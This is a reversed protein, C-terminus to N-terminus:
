YGRTQTVLSQFKSAIQKNQGVDSVSMNDYIAYFAGRSEKSTRQSLNNMFRETVYGNKVLSDFLTVRYSHLEEFEISNQNTPYTKSLYELALSDIKNEISTSTEGYVKKYFTYYDIKPFIGTHASMIKNGTFSKLANSNKMLAVLESKESSSLIPAGGKQSSDAGHGDKFYPRQAYEVLTNFNVAINYPDQLIQNLIAKREQQNQAFKLKCGLEKAALEKSDSLAGYASVDSNNFGFLKNTGQRKWASISNAQCPDTPKHIIDLAANMFSTADHVSIDQFPNPLYDNNRAMQAIHFLLSKDSGSSEGPASRTWGFTTANPFMRLYRQHLPNDQDLTNSFEHNMAAYSQTLGDAERVQGVRTAHFDATENPAIKDVGLTRCGQLWLASINSFWEKYKPNCSAAELFDLTLNGSANHGGWSGTHHGSIILGDCRQGQKMMEEIMRKFADEPNGKNQMYEVVTIKGGNTSKTNIQDAFTKMTKYEKTNNLSFYCITADKKASSSQAFLIHPMLFALLILLVKM